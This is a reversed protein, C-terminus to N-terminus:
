LVYSGVDMLGISLNGMMELVYLAVLKWFTVWNGIEHEVVM